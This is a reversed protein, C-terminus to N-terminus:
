DFPVHVERGQLLCYDLFLKSIMTGENENDSLSRRLTDVPFFRPEADEKSRPAFAPWLSEEQTNRLYFRSVGDFELKGYHLLPPPNPVSEHLAVLCSFFDRGRNERNPASLNLDFPEIDVEQNNATRTLWDFLAERPKAEKLLRVLEKQTLGNRRQYYKPRNEKPMWCFVELTLGVYDGRSVWFEQRIGEEILFDVTAATPSLSRDLIDAALPATAEQLAYKKWARFFDESFVDKVLHLVPHSCFYETDSSATEDGVIGLKELEQQVLEQIWGDHRLATVLQSPIRWAEQQHFSFPVFPRFLHAPVQQEKRSLEILHDIERILPISDDEPQSKLQHFLREPVAEARPFERPLERLQLLDTIQEAFDPPGKRRQQVYIELEKLINQTHIRYGQLNQIGELEEYFRNHLQRLANMAQFLTAYLNLLGVIEGLLSRAARVIGSWRYSLAPFRPPLPIGLFSRWGWLLPFLRCLSTFLTEYIETYANAARRASLELLNPIAALARIEEERLIRLERSLNQLALTTERRRDRRQARTLERIRELDADNQEILQIIQSNLTYICNEQEEWLRTEFLQDSVDAEFLFINLNDLFSLQPQYFTPILERLRLVIEVLTQRPHVPPGFLDPLPQEGQLIHDPNLESLLPPAEDKGLGFARVLPRREPRFRKAELAQCMDELTRQYVETLTEGSVEQLGLEETLRFDELQHQEKEMQWRFVMEAAEALCEERFREADWFQIVGRDVLYITPSPKESALPDQQEPETLGKRLLAVITQLTDEPTATLPLIYLTKLNPNQLLANVARSLQEYMRTHGEVLTDPYSVLLHATRYEGDKLDAVPEGSLDPHLEMWLSNDLAPPLAEEDATERMRHLFREIRRHHIRVTM